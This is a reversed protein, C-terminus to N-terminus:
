GEDARGIEQLGFGDEASALTGLELDNGRRRAQRSALHHHANINHRFLM